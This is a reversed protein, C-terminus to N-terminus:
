ACLESAPADLRTGYAFFILVAGDFVGHAGFPFFNDWNQRDAHPFTFALVLIIIVLNTIKM